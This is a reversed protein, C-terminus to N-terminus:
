AKEMYTSSVHWQLVVTKKGIVKTCIKEEIKLCELMYVHKHLMTLCVFEM